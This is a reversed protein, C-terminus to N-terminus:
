SSSGSISVFLPNSDTLASFASFYFLNLQFYSSYCINCSKTKSAHKQVMNLIFCNMHVFDYLNWESRYEKTQVKSGSAGVIVIEENSFIEALRGARM